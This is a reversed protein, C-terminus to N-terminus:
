SITSIATGFRRNSVNKATPNIREGIVVPNEGMVVACSGSSVVTRHYVPLPKPSIERCAAVEAAIHAPTTGCCGGVMWVGKKAIEAMVKAFADPAVNYMTQGNVVVPLGANPSVLIPTSCCKQLEDVLPLMQEPGFGCNLGIADVGLGELMAVAAPIDAGTLLRGREDFVMTVFVPLQCCEKVALVAAKMEMTDSMTEIICCDAGAEVGAKVMEKYAEVATEFDLDGLPKLLKGTPGIDLAVWAKKGSQQVAQRALQVGATTLQQATYSSGHLKLANAGFTNTTVFDAGAQLYQLHISLIDQPHTINWSEPLEGPKLGADQLLTGMGGDFFLMRSGAQETFFNM